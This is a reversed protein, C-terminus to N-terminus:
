FSAGFAFLTFAFLFLLSHSSFNLVYFATRSFSWPRSLSFSRLAVSPFCVGCNLGISFSNRFTSCATSCDKPVVLSVCSCPSRRSSRALISHVSSPSSLFRTFMASLRGLPSLPFIVGLKFLLFRFPLSHFSLRFQFGPSFGRRRGVTFRFVFPPILAGCIVALFLARVYAFCQYRMRSVLGRHLSLGDPRSALM